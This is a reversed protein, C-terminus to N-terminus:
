RRSDDPRLAHEFDPMIRSFDVDTKTFKGTIFPITKRGWKLLQKRRDPSMYNPAPIDSIFSELATRTPLALRKQEDPTLTAAEIFDLADSNANGRGTELITALRTTFDPLSRLRATAAERTQRDHYVDALGLLETFGFETQPDLTAVKALQEPSSDRANLIRHVLNGVGGFGSNVLRHGFFGVCIVLSLAAFITWPLRLWQIPFVSALRPNLSLVVLLATTLPVLLIGPVYLLRPTFGPRIYLAIFVFTVVALALGAAIALPYLMTRGLRLWDFGGSATVCLLAVLLLLWLPILVYLAPTVWRDDSPYKSAYSWLLRSLPFLFVLAALGVCANGITQLLPSPNM